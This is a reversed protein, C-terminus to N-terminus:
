VVLSVTDVMQVAEGWPKGEDAKEQVLVLWDIADPDLDDYIGEINSVNSENDADDYQPVRSNLNALIQGAICHQGHHDTYMCVGEDVGPNYAHRHDAAVKRAEAQIDALTLRTTTM